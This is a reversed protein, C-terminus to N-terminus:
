LAAALRKFEQVTDPDLRYRVRPPELSRRVWGAERLVKLHQSVTAQALPLHSVIAGCTCAGKQSLLYRVIASRAPNGLARCLAALRAGADIGSVPTM